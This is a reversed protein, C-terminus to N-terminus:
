DVKSLVIMTQTKDVGEVSRMRKIVLENLEDIDMVRVKIIIDTGGTVIYVEDVGELRKLSKAIDEQELKVGKPTTYVVSAMIFASIPKGLKKIEEAKKPSQINQKKDELLSKKLL